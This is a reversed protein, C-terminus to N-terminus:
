DPNILPLKAIYYNNDISFEPITGTLHMYRKRLNELGIGHSKKKESKPNFNNVVFLFDEKTYISLDLPADESIINHKFANELLLQISLPPVLKNIEDAGINLSYSILNEFRIEQLALYAKAYNIEKKLEVVTKDIVDLTYRYVYSFDEIFIEAKEPNQKVLASLVNLSNFLFHPNLQDKLVQFKIQAIEKQLKETKYLNKQKEIFFIIAEILTILLVNVAFFLICNILLTTLYNEYPFIIEVASTTLFSLLIGSALTLGLEIIFRRLINKTWPYANNLKRVFYLNISILVYGAIASFFSGTVVRIIFNTLSDVKIFGTYANYTILLSQILVAGAIILFINRRNPKM